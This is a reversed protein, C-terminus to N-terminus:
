PERRHVIRGDRLTLRVAGRLEWQRYPHNDGASWGKAPAEWAYEPDFVCLDASAGPALSPPPLGLATAPGTTLRQVLQLLSLVGARVLNLSLPLLYEIAAIGFPAAAMTANGHDPGRPEHQASLVSVTGRALARRLGEQQRADRLPPLIKAHTNFNGIDQSTLLLHHISVGATVAQGAAQAAALQAVATASSLTPFHVRAGVLRAIELDRYLGIDEAARARGTLGLRLSLPGEDVVGDAALRSDEPHLLVTRDFDAAYALALRLIQADEVSRQAQGFAVAGAELLASMECLGRGDLKPTLAACPMVRILGVAEAQALQERIVGPTDAVPQTDPRLLVRTFGGAAAARLESGLDGDRGSGPTHGQFSTEIFGPCLCCGHADVVETASFDRPIDGAALIRGNAVALDAVGDFGTSPDLLRAGRILRAETKM